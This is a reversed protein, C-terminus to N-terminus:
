SFEEIWRWLLMWINKIGGIFDNLFTDGIEECKKGALSDWVPVLSKLYAGSSDREIIGTKVMYVSYAQVVLDDM